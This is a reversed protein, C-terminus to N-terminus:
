AAKQRAHGVKAIDLSMPGCGLGKLMVRVRHDGEVRMIEGLFGQFAGGIIQIPDKPNFTIKRVLTHDFAGMTQKAKLDEVFAYDIAKPAGMVGVICAVGDATAIDHFSQGPQVGVFLYRTFLPRQVASKTRAHRRWRTEAPMYADFGRERLAVEARKERGVHTYVAFWSAM